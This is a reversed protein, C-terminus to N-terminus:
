KLTSNIFCQINISYKNHKKTVIKLGGSVLITKPPGYGRSAMHSRIYM